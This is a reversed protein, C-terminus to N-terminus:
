ALGKRAVNQGVEQQARDKHDTLQQVSRKLSQSLAQIEQNGQYKDKLEKIVKDADQIGKEISRLSMDFPLHAGKGAKSSQGGVLKIGQDRVADKIAEWTGKKGNQAQDTSRALTAIQEDIVAIASGVSKIRSELAHETKAQNITQTAAQIQQELAPRGEVVRDLREQLGTVRGNDVHLGREVATGKEIVEDNVAQANNLGDIPQAVVAPQNPMAAPAVPKQENLRKVEQEAQKHEAIKDTAGQVDKAESLKQFDQYIENARREATKIRFTLLDNRTKIIEQNLRKQNEALRPDNDPLNNLREHLGQIRKLFALDQIDERLATIARLQQIAQNVAGDNKDETASTKARQALDERLRLLMDTATERQQPAQPDNSVRAERLGKIADLEKAANYMQSVDGLERKAEALKADAKQKKDQAKQKEEATAPPQRRPNNFDKVETDATKVATEAANVKQTAETNFGELKKLAQEREEKSDLANKFEVITTLKELKHNLEDLGAKSKKLDDVAKIETQLTVIEQDVAQIEPGDEKIEAEALQAQAELRWKADRSAELKKQLDASKEEIYQELDKPEEKLHRQVQEAYKGEILNRAQWKQHNQTLLQTLQPGFKQSEAFRDLTAQDLEFKMGRMNAQDILQSIREFQVGLLKTDNFTMTFVDCGLQKAKDMAIGWDVATPKKRREREDGMFDLIRQNDQYLYVPKFTWEGTKEDHVQHIRFNSDRVEVKSDGYPKVKYYGDKEELRGYAKLIADEADNPDESSIKFPDKNKEKEALKKEEELDVKTTADYEFRIPIKSLTARANELAKPREQEYLHSLQETLDAQYKENQNKVQALTKKVDAQLAALDKQELKDDKQLADLAKKEAQEYIKDLDPQKGQKMETIQTDLKLDAAISKVAKAADPSSQSLKADLANLADSQQKKADAALTNIRDDPKLEAKDLHIGLHTNGYKIRELIAAREAPNRANAM